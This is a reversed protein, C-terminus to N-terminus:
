QVQKWLSLIFIVTVLCYSLKTYIVLILSKEGSLHYKLHLELLSAM